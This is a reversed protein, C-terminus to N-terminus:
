KENSENLELHEWETGNYSNETCVACEYLFQGLEVTGKPVSDLNTSKEASSAVEKVVNEVSNYSSLLNLDELGNKFTSNLYKTAAHSEFLDDTYSRNIKVVGFYDVGRIRTDEDVIPDNQIGFQYTIPSDPTSFLEPGSASLHIVTEVEIGLSAGAHVIYTAMGAGFASGHSHTFIHLKEIINGNEDTKLNSIIDQFNERAYNAGELFRILGSSAPTDGSGDVFMSGNGEDGVFSKLYSILNPDWYDRGSMSGILGLYDYSSWFGNVFITKGGNPDILSIPNGEMAAYPSQFCHTIPDMRLWRGLRVDLFRAGFDYNGNFEPDNEKGNFGFRYASISFSRGEMAAGFATYDQAQVVQAVGPPAGNGRTRCRAPRPPQTRLMRGALAPQDNRLAEPRKGTETLRTLRGGM